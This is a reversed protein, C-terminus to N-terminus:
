IERTDETRSPYFPRMRSVVDVASKGPHIDPRARSDQATSEDVARYVDCLQSARELPSYVDAVVRRNHAVTESDTSGNLASVLQSSRAKAEAEYGSDKSFRQLVEAQRAPTLMAFDITDVADSQPAFKPRFAQGVESWAKAQAAATEEYCERIWSQEGPIPISEYLCPFKIGNSSFDSTVTPLNRAIVSRGALWPELFAMGFGEAVSTSLIYDSAAVNQSFTLEDSEGAGFVARPAVSKALERWREYSRREVPNDPCLTLGTFREEPMWRSLLLWEAVNKRRIGRVPYLSWRSDSPLQFSQRVLQLSEDQDPLESQHSAISNPLCHMQSAPLGIQRFVSADATTLAAYHINAARPYLFRDVEGSSKAHSSRIIEAYNSPRNDEAFDHVQLLLRWGRSALERIVPPAAANKGLSHNHWHLLTEDCSFGNQDLTQVLSNSLRQARSPLSETPEVISDYDLSEIAIHQAISLTSDSLGSTRNGSVLAIQKVSDVDALARVHNEVVQTM